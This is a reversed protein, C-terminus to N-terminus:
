MVRLIFCKLYHTEPMGALIPHDSSQGRREVVQVFRRADRSAECLIEFFARESLQYSCSSTVLIGEPKLIKMARLNIEKYGARAASLAGRNKAFAPPDLCIIDFANGENELERLCDFVNAEKFKVNTIGNLAANRMGQALSPASSDIALVSQCKRAFHLAFAGTNTFCDLGRGFAYGGAAIRNDRQDLFFGTKQGGAIDVHFRLGGESIEIESPTTGWLPGRIAGLGEMRRAKVDNREYIGEPEVLNLLSEVLLPKLMEAGSSLTQLVVHKGYLDAVISPLLDAEGFILRCAAGAELLTRRRQVSAKVRAHIWDPTPPDTSRSLIRLRIQSQRSYFAYGLHNRARDVIEVIPPALVGPEKEVDSSYIWLHNQRLRQVGAPSIAVQEKVSWSDV